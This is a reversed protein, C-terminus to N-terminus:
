WSRLDVEVAFISSSVRTIDVNTVAELFSWNQLGNRVVLEPLGSRAFM